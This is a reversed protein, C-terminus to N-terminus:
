EGLHRSSHNQSDRPLKQELQGGQILVEERCAVPALEFNDLLTVGGEGFVGLAVAECRDPTTEVHEPSM